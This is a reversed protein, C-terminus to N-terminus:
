KFLNDIGHQVLFTLIDDVRKQREAALLIAQPYCIFIEGLVDEQGTEKYPFTLVPLAVDENKYKLVIERMKRRGVFVINVIVNEDVRYSSLYSQSLEKLPKKHLKYRTPAVINIM